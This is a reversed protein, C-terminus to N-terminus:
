DSLGNGGSIQSRSHVTSNSSQECTSDIAGGLAALAFVIEQEILDSNAYKRGMEDAATMNLEQINNLADVLRAVLGARVYEVSPGDWKSQDSPNWGDENAWIRVPMDTM